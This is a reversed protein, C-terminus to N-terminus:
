SPRRLCISTMMRAEGSMSMSRNRVWIAWNGSAIRARIYRSTELSSPASRRDRRIAPPTGLTPAASVASSSSSPSVTMSRESISSEVEPLWEFNAPEGSTTCNMPAPSLAAPRNPSDLAGSPSRSAPAGIRMM